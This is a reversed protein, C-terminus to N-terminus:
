GRKYGERRGSDSEARLPKRQIKIQKQKKFDLNWSLPFRHYKDKWTQNIERLMTIELEIWEGALSIIKNKKIAL